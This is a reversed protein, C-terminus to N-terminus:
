DSNQENDTTSSEQHQTPPQTNTESSQTSEQPQVSSQPKTQSSQPNEQRQTSSQVNSNTNTNANTNTNTNTNGNETRSSEQKKTTPEEGSSVNKANSDNDANYFVVGHDSDLDYTSKGLSERDIEKGDKIYIRYAEVSYSSKGKDLMKNETIIEDYNSSKYGWISATLINGDYVKCEIFMQYDTPNKLKLDLGPYDITADLGTPVYTSAWKHNYREEVDMNARIAANYITSSSQCLGGGIGDVLKGDSIVHAPLYGNSELNSDGTCKNFSWVEGPEIVSGNCAKLSVAMNNTGNATNYSVTEYKALQVINAKVDEIQIDAEISEVEAEIRIESKDSDFFENIKQILDDGNLKRGREAEAYTFRKDGYPTFESVHANVADKNTNEEVEKIKKDISEKSVTATIFYSNPDTSNINQTASDKKNSKSTTDSEATKIKNLVDDIDYTYEFDKETLQILEGDADISISIPNIFKDKNEELIAKAQEITKNGISVGSVVTGEAFRFVYSSGNVNSNESNPLNSSNYLLIGTVSVVALVAVAIVSSLIVIKKKNKKPNESKKDAYRKGSSNSKHIKEFNEKNGSIDVMEENAIFDDNHNTKM